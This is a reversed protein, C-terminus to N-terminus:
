ESEEFERRREELIKERGFRFLQHLFTIQAYNGTPLLKITEDEWQADNSDKKGEFIKNLTEADTYFRSVNHFESEIDQKPGEGPYVEVSGRKVDLYFEPKDNVIFRIIQHWRILDVVRRGGPTEQAMKFFSRAKEIINESWM